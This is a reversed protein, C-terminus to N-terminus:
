HLSNYSVTMIQWYLQSNRALTIVNTKSSYTSAVGNETVKLRSLLFSKKSKKQIVMERAKKISTTCHIKYTQKIHQQYKIYIKASSASLEPCHPASPLWVDVHHEHVSHLWHRATNQWTRHEYSMAFCRELLLKETNFYHCVHLKYQVRIDKHTHRKCKRSQIMDKLVWLWTFNLFYYKKNLDDM